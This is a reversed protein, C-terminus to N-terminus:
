GLVRLGIYAIILVIGVPPFLITIFILILIILM